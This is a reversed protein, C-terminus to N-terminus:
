EGEGPKRARRALWLGGLVLALTVALGAVALPLGYFVYYAGPGLGDAFAPTAAGLLPVATAVTGIPM